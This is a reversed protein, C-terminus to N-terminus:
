RKASDECPESHCKRQDLAFIPAPMSPTVRLCDSKALSTQQTPLRLWQHLLRKTNSPGGAARAWFLLTNYLNIFYKMNGLCDYIIVNMLFGDGVDTTQVM